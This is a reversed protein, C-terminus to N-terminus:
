VLFRTPLDNSLHRRLRRDQLEMLNVRLENSHSGLRASYQSSYHHIEEEVTPIQLDRRIVSSSVYWPAEMIMRLANLQFRELIEINSTTAKGWPQIGYTWIPWLITKYLLLKNSTSLKLKRGLLCYIKALTIGLQKRKVFIHKQWTLRRDLAAPSVQCRRRRWLQVNSVHIPPVNRKTYHSHRPHVPDLLQLNSLIKNKNKLLKFLILGAAGKTIMYITYIAHFTKSFVSIALIAM